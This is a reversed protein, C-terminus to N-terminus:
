GPFDTPPADPDAVPVPPAPNLSVLGSQRADDTARAAVTYPEGTEAMRARIARKRARDSTM